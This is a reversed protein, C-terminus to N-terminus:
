SNGTVKAIVKKLDTKHYVKFFEEQIQEKHWKVLKITNDAIEIATVGGPFLACGTNFFCPLPEVGPDISDINRGWKEEWKYAHEKNELENRLEILREDDDRCASIQEELEKIDDKLRQAYAKSAFIARHSHGCILIVRFEKAWSYLIQEFDKKIVSKTSPKPLDVKIFGEIWRYARVAIRCLWARRDSKKDGQHGHVLLAVINGQEDRLKLAETACMHQVPNSKTPDCPTRWNIDHNGFVRHVREDEFERIKEYVTDNYEETIEDLNFQWLEEIDGLFILSYGERNYHDFARILAGKNFRVDDALGGNGFHIDSFIAYKNEPIVLVPIDKREWLGSLKKSTLARDHGM